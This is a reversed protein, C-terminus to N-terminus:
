PGPPPPLPDGQQPPPPPPPPLPDWILNLGGMGGGPPPLPDGQQPPPPPPPPLPDWILNLGGMTASSPLGHAIAKVVLSTPSVPSAGATGAVLVLTLAAISLVVWLRRV